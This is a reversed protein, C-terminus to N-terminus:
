RSWRRGRECPASWTTPTWCRSRPLEAVLSSGTYGVSKLIGLEPMSRQVHTAANSAAVTLAVLLVFCVAAALIAATISQMVYRAQRNRAYDTGEISTEPMEEFIAQTLEGRVETSKGRDTLRASVVTVPAASSRLQEYLDDGALLLMIGCNHSGAMSSNFFGATRITRKEGNIEIQADKGPVLESSEYMLPYYIGDADSDTQATIDVRGIGWADAGTVPLVVMANTLTEDNYPITAFIELGSRLEYSDVSTSDDLVKRLTEDVPAGNGSVVLLVDEAHLTEHWRDFNARYDTSLMVLLNLVMAGVAVLIVLLLTQGRERRLNSRILLFLRSVGVM